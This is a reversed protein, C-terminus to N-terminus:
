HHLQVRRAIAELAQHVRENADDDLPLNFMTALDLESRILSLLKLIEQAAGTLMSAELLYPKVAPQIRLSDNNM